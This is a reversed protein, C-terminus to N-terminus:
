NPDFFIVNKINKCKERKCGLREKKREGHELKIKLLGKKKKLEIIKQVYLRRENKRVGFYSESGKFDLAHRTFEIETIFLLM